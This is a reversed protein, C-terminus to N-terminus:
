NALMIVEHVVESEQVIHNSTLNGIDEFQSVHISFPLDTYAMEGCNENRMVIEFSGWQWIAISKRFKSIGLDLKLHWFFLQQAWIM